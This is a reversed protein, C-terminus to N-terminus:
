CVGARSAGYFLSGTLGAYVGMQIFIGGVAAAQPGGKSLLLGIGGSATGVAFFDNATQGCDEFAGKIAKEIIDLSKEAAKEWPLRLNNAELFGSYTSARNSAKNRQERAKQMKARIREITSRVRTRRTRRVAKCGKKTSCTGELDFENIPDQEAYDYPNASGGMIPDPTLFRGLSPVYSRAGMQVVGSPLETRRQSGGLWGFRGANGFTPVGFADYNLTAKLGTVAPNIAATASVDGHLNTLQLTVEKGSEQVAALEGGIGPINRSWTSGRETWAPADSPSDYHFVETGELGSGQLRMRQRLSSDLLFTNTIGNQSQTAVMDNAFYNTALDKGGAYAAPLYTIRGFGDYTPGVLRDGADYSYNQVTGGSNACVGGVGSRTTLSKRNSDADYTYLRSTCQGGSPTEQASIIRGAPDYSYRKTGLTGSEELIQGHISRQLGFDLWLCSAGCNSAKRYALHETAGTADFDSEATLGNPLIKDTIAGDANYIATFIGAASDEVEVPFGSTSDYRFTQSGKNNSAKEPRSFLDYTRTAKNGDADEYSTVRGLTDYTTKTEQSDFATMSWKQVRWRSSDVVLINGKGDLALGEPATFSSQSEGASGFKLLFQGNETFKQVRGNGQDSVWVNGSADTEVGAPKALQGDGSGAAGFKRSYAYSTTFAQMRNNGTDAVWLLFGQFGIATPEKLQGNGSGSEGFKALVEGQPSFKEVRNNAREVVFFNQGGTTTIGIPESIQGEGSGTSGAQCVHGSAATCRNKELTTGGAEVKTKNVNSGIVQIFAGTSSFQTIRNNYTDTVDINGASDIALASPERLKGGTSGIGGAERIFEGAENYQVIRHRGKDVIWSNGSADVAVDSPWYLPDNGTGGLGFSTQFQPGECETACKFREAVPAGLEKSYEVEVKPIPAGGGEIKKTTQRGLADYTLLKKRVNSTGGGPSEVIETPQDLGNYSNVTKVLLEPRDTGSAQAAPLTKCLLGAYVPKSNCEPYSSGQNNNAGTYYVHKTTGAGGGSPNSPQRVEVPMGTAEDYVTVSKIALHGSGPDVVEETPLRLNWNYNYETIRKDVDESQGAIAAGTTETTPLHYPAQGTPPAPNVYAVVTHVRAEKTEGGALRVPHLPGWSELMETGDASFVSHSDLERSRSVSNSGAALATLRNQPSLSRVLNGHMDVETTTISAGEAGPPASPATNVEYGEPDFYHLTAHSFDSPVSGAPVQDPPFVAVADVPYDSQGWAAVTAPGMDYPAGSGSVPVRYVITGTATPSNAVLSARSVNKLASELEWGYANTDYYDFLWPQQGPPTVSALRSSSPKYSYTEELPKGGNVGSRPDAQAILQSSSNYTYESVTQGSASGSADFYKISSLRYWGQCNTCKSYQFTLTRCGPTTTPSTEGCTVGPPSPAIEKVLLYSATGEAHEYVMRVSKSTAQWSITKAQYESNGGASTFVTKTGSPSALIFSGSEKSLVWGTMYDPAVYAGGVLDFSAGGGENDLVEVWDSAPVEDEVM